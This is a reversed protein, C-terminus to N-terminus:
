SRDRPSPSTYLLCSSSQAIIADTKAQIAELSASESSSQAIIADTKAQIAELSASESSSQAIIADAKAQIAELSAAEALGQAIIAAATSEAASLTNGYTTILDDTKKVLGTTPDDILNIRSTLASYLQSETLEGTLVDLLKGVDQGTTVVHGNTGGSPTESLTGDNTLWKLWIHWTTAPESVMTFRAGTFEAIIVTDIDTYQPIPENTLRVKGYVLTRAHGHGLTYSPEDQKIFISTIGASIDVNTPTPPPRTDPVEDRSLAQATLTSSIEYVDPDIDSVIAYKIYVDTLSPVGAITASLGSGNYVLIGETEADFTDSDLSYWVKIGALDDRVDIGNTELPPNINVVLSNVGSTIYASM